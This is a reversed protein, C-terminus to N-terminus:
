LGLEIDFIGQSLNKIEESLNLVSVLEQSVLLSDGIQLKNFRGIESEERFRSMSEEVIQVQRFGEELSESLKEFDSGQVEIEVFTGLLPRMRKLSQNLTKM